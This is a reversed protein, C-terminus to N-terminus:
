AVRNKVWSGTMLWIIVLHVWSSPDSAFVMRRAHRMQETHKDCRQEWLDLCPFTRLTQQHVDTYRLPSKDVPITNLRSSSSIGETTVAHVFRSYRARLSDALGQFVFVVHGCRQSSEVSIFCGCCLTSPYWSWSTLPLPSLNIFLSWTSARLYLTELSGNSRWTFM